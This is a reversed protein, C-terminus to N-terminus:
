CPDNADYITVTGQGPIVRQVSIIATLDIHFTLSAVTLSEVEIRDDWPLLDALARAWSIAGYPTTYEIEDGKKIDM